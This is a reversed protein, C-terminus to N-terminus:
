FIEEVVVSSKKGVIQKGFTECLPTFTSLPMDNIYKEAEVRSLVSGDVSELCYKMLQSEVLEENKTEKKAHNFDRVLPTRFIFVQGDVTIKIKSM